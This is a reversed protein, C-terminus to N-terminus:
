WLRGGQASDRAQVRGGCLYGCDDGDRRDRNWGIGCARSSAIYAGERGGFFVIKKSNEM